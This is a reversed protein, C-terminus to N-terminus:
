LVWSHQPKQARRRRLAIVGLLLLGWGGGGTRTSTCGCGSDGDAPPDGSGSETEGDPGDDTEEPSSGSETEDGTEPEPEPPDQDVGIHVPESNTVNGGHDTAVLELVYGGPPFGAAWTWPPFAKAGNPISAGNILLEVSAIGWGADSAQGVIEIDALGTLLSSNFVSQDAPDIIAAVPAEVDEIVTPEGCTSSTGGLPQAECWSSWSGAGAAPDLPFGACDPGPQWSGDGNHCPTIDIGSRKEIWQVASHMTGFFQPLACDQPGWSTVGFVRWSQEPDLDPPLRLYLPGGSDGNCISLGNGGAEVEGDVSVIPFTVHKKTGYNDFEDFGFGVAVVEAGPQLLATECGMLIPVIEIDTVPEVLKCFAFDTNSGISNFDPNIDCYETDVFRGADTDDLTEGFFVWPIHGCHGAYFVIEPHVLTGTCNGAMSVTSPWECTETAQGGYILPTSEPAEIIEIIPPSAHAPRAALSALVATSTLLVARRV